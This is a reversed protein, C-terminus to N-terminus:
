KITMIYDGVCEAYSNQVEFEAQRTGNTHRTLTIRISDSLSSNYEKKIEAAEIIKKLDSISIIKTIAIM